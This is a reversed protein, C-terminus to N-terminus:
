ERLFAFVQERNEVLHRLPSEFVNLLISMVDRKPLSNNHEKFTDFYDEFWIHSRELQRTM